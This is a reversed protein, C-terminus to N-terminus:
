KKMKNYQEDTLKWGSRGNKQKYKEVKKEELLKNLIGQTIGDNIPPKRYFDCGKSIDAAGRGLNEDYNDFLDRLVAKKAYDMSKKALEKKDEM